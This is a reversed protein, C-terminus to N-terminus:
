FKEDQRRVVESKLLRKHLIKNLERYFETVTDYVTVYHKATIPCHPCKEHTKKTTKTSILTRPITEHALFHLTKRYCAKTKLHMLIAKFSSKTSKLFTM